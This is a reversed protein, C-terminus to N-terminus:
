SPPALVQALGVLIGATAGWIRRGPYPLVYYSRTEGRWVISERHHNATDLVFSLPVQFVDAVERSDLAFEVPPEIWGVFPFVRFGTITEYAPLRGLLDVREPALGIEEFAERLAASEPGDDSAEIRGGPLSIEAAHDKLHAARQTLIVHPGGPHALLGVLVAAPIGRAPPSGCGETSGCAEQLRARLEERDVPQSGSGPPVGDERMM